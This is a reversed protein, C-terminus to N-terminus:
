KVFKIKHTQKYRVKYASRIKSKDKVANRKDLCVKAQYDGSSWRPDNIRVNNTKNPLLQCLWKEGYRWVADKNFMAEQMFTEVIAIDGSTWEYRLNARRNADSYYDFGDITISYNLPNEPNIGGGAQNEINNFAFLFYSVLLIINEMIIKLLYFWIINENM